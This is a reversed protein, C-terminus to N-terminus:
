YPSLISAVTKVSSFESECIAPISGVVKQTKRWVSKGIYDDEANARKCQFNIM